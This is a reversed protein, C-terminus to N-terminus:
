WAITEPKRKRATALPKLFGASPARASGRLITGKEYAERLFVDVHKEQWVEMMKKTNGGGVYIIDASLIKRRMEEQTADGSLLLLTETQCGLKEGYVEHFTDMYGQPEGSATPLFLALPKEKHALSVIQRDIALTEELRIEGGGIAVITGM